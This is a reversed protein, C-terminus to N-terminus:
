ASLHNIGADLSEIANEHNRITGLVPRTGTSTDIHFVRSLLRVTRGRVMIPIGDMTQYSANDIASVDTTRTIEDTRNVLNRLSVLVVDNTERYEPGFNPDRRVKSANEGYLSRLRNQNYPIKLYRLYSRYKHPTGVSDIDVFIRNNDNSDGDDNIQILDASEERTERRANHYLINLTLEKEETGDPMEIRGGLDAYYGTDVDRFLPIFIEDANPGNVNTVFLLTGSGSFKQGNPMIAAIHNDTSSLREIGVPSVSTTDVPDSCTDATLDVFKTEGDDTLYTPGKPPYTRLVSLVSRISPEDGRITVKVGNIDYTNTVVERMTVPRTAYPFQDLNSARSELQRIMADRRLQKPRNAAEIRAREDAALDAVNHATGKSDVLFYVADEMGILAPLYTFNSM